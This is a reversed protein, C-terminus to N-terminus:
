FDDLLDQKLVNSPNRKKNKVTKVLHVILLIFYVLVALFALYFGFGPEYHMGSFLHFTLIFALLPMYLLFGAGLILGIIATALNKKITTILGIVFLGAFILLAGENEFGSTAGDESSSGSFWGSGGGSSNSTHTEYPFFMSLLIIGAIILTYTLLNKM